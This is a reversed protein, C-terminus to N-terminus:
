LWCLVERREKKGGKKKREEEGKEICAWTSGAKRGAWEHGDTEEGGVNRATVGM